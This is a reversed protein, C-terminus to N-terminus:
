LFIFLYTQTNSVRFNPTIGCVHAILVCHVVHQEPLQGALHQERQAEVEEVRHEVPDAGPELHSGNHCSVNIARHFGAKILM